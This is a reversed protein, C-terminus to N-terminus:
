IYLYKYVKYHFILPDTLTVEEVTVNVRDMINKLQTYGGCGLEIVKGIYIYKYIYLCIYIYNYMYIYVYIQIDM